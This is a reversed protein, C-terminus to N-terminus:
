WGEAEQREPSAGHSHASVEPKSLIVLGAPNAEAATADDAIAIFTGGMGLSRAGPPFFSFTPSASGADPPTLQAALRAAPLLLLLTVMFCTPGNRM